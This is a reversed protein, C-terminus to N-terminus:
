RHAATLDELILTTEGAGVVGVVVLGVLLTQPLDGHGLAVGDRQVEVRELYALEYMKLLRRLSGTECRSM